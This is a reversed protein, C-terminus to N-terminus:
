LKKGRTMNRLVEVAKQAIEDSGAATKQLLQQVAALSYRELSAVIELKLKLLSRGYLLNRSFLIRTLEALADARGYEGLARVVACKFEVEFANLGGQAILQLLKSFVQPPKTMEVLRIAEMQTERSDSCVDRLIQREAMPDRCLLLTKFAEQRVRPHAHKVLPRLATMVDPNQVDKLLIILNRLVYWRSDHLRALIPERIATEFEALREMIFHRLLRNEEVALHSLLPEIFPTGIKWILNKVQYHQAKGWVSLGNLIEELCDRGTCRELITLRFMESKSPDNAQELISLYNVYDGTQLFYSGMDSLSRALLECGEPDDDSSSILELLIASIHSEVQHSDITGLLPEIEDSQLRPIERSAVLSNLKNQYESPVYIEGAQERLITRMHERAQDHETEDDHMGTTRKPTQLSLKQLLKVIVPSVKLSRGSIDDLVDQIASPTVDGELHSSLEEGGPGSDKLTSQLLQQRLAPNLCAIFRALKDSVANSYGPPSDSAQQLIDKLASDHWSVDSDSRESYRKNFVAALLEPDAEGSYRGGAGPGGELLGRAFQQWLGGSEPQDSRGPDGESATFLDYRISRITLSEIGSEQWVADIGGAQLIEERKMDLISLFSLIEETTLGPSFTLAGIGCQFLARAFDRFVTNNRDLANNGHMLTERAVAISLEQENGMLASYRTVLKGLSSEILPHGAPYSRCNRRAINFEIILGALQGTDLSDPANDQQDTHM